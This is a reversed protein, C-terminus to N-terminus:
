AIIVRKIRVKRPPEESKKKMFELIARRICESRTMKLKMYCFRDLEELLEESIKLTIVRMTGCSISPM